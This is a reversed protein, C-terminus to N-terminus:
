PRNSWINSSTASFNNRRWIDTGNPLIHPEDFWDHCGVCFIDTHTGKLDACSEGKDGAPCDSLHGNEQLVRGQNLAGEGRPRGQVEQRGEEPRHVSGDKQDAEYLAGRGHGEDQTPHAQSRRRQSPRRGCTRDDFAGPSLMLVIRM